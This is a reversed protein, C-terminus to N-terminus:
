RTDEVDTDPRDSGDATEAHWKGDATEYEIAETRGPVRQENAVRRAVALAKAHTPFAESFVGNVTYAWGGDHRVIKYTVHSMPFESKNAPPVAAPIIELTIELTIELVM